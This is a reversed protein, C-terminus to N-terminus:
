AQRNQETNFADICARRRRKHKKKNTKYTRRKKVGRYKSNRPLEDKKPMMLNRRQSMEKEASCGVMGSFVILWALLFLIRSLKM